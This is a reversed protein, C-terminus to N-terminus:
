YDTNEDELLLKDKEVLTVTQKYNEKLFPIILKLKKIPYDNKKNIQKSAKYYKTKFSPFTTTLKHKEMFLNMRDKKNSGSLLNTEDAYYFITAWEFVSFPNENVQQPQISKLKNELWKKYLFYKGYIHTANDNFYYHISPYFTINSNKYYNNVLRSYEFLDSEKPSTYKIKFTETTSLQNAKQIFNTLLTLEDKLIKQNITEYKKLFAKQLKECYRQAYFKEFHEILEDKNKPDPIFSYEDGIKCGLREANKKDAIKTVRISQKYKESKTMHRKHKLAKCILNLVILHKEKPKM